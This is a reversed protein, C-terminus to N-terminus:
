DIPHKDFFLPLFITVTTGSGTESSISISGGHKSIISHTTSLGLGTGFEKTTFYPDFLKELHDKEIGHGTDKFVIQIYAAPRLGYKNDPSLTVAEARVVLIGGNPMAQLANLIINNFAQNIHQTDAFIMYHSSCDVISKVNTESLFLSVSEQLLRDVAVPIKTLTSGKSFTLLERALATARYSAKEASELIPLVKDPDGLHKKAYSIYGIVGTLVNNFNHAIGGAM